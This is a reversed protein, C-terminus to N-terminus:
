EWAFFNDDDMFNGYHSESPSFEPLDQDFWTTSHSSDAANKPTYTEPVLPTSVKSDQGTSQTSTQITNMNSPPNTVPMPIYNYNQQQMPQQLQTQTQDQQQLQVQQLQNGMMLQQQMNYSPMQPQMTQPMQVHQAPQMQMMQMQSMQPMQAAMKPDNQVMNIMPIVPGKPKQNQVPNQMMQMQTMQQMDAAPNQPANIMMAINKKTIATMERQRRNVMSTWHNKVNVDSRPAFFLSIHAWKPGIEAVKKALLEEEEPTWPGNKIKPSLYNKYRERCQRPTRTKIQAAIACWNSEGHKEVLSKLLEDEGKTFKHRQAGPQKDVAPWFQPGSSFVHPMFLNSPNM